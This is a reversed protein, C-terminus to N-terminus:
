IRGAVANFKLQLISYEWDGYILYRKVNAKMTTTAIISGKVCHHRKHESSEEQNMM